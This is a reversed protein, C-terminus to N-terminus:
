DVLEICYPSAPLCSTVPCWLIVPQFCFFYSTVPCWQLVPQFLFTPLLLVGYHLLNFCFLLFYCSVMTCCTLVSFYSTVPCWLVCCTLVSFYSTVPFWLVVHQFLFTPLLLVGYYLLNFCCFLLFHCSVM